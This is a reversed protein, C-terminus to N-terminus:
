RSGGKKTKQTERERAWADPRWPLDGDRLGEELCDLLEQLTDWSGWCKTLTERDTLCGKWAGDQCSVTLTGPRRDAGDEWRERTLFEGLNPFSGVLEVKPEAAFEGGRVEHGQGSRPLALHIEKTRRVPPRYGWHGSYNARGRRNAYCKCCFDKCPKM